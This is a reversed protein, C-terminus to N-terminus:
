TATSWYHAPSDSNSVSPGDAIDSHYRAMSLDWVGARDIKADPALTLPAALTL